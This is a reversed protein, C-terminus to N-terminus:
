GSQEVNGLVSLLGDDSPKEQVQMSGFSLMYQSPLLQMTIQVDKLWLSPTSLMAQLQLM